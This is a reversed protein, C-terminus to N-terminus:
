WKALAREVLGIAQEEKARMEVLVAALDRRVGADTLKRYEEPKDLGGCISWMKFVLDHEEHYLRAAQTLDPAASPARAAVQQLYGDAMSREEALNGAVSNHMTHHQRLTAEDGSFNAADLLSEEWAKLAAQGNWKTAVWAPATPEPFVKPTRFVQLGWALSDHYVQRIDPRPSKEGIMLLCLNGEMWNRKRFQGEPEFDGKGSWPYDQFHSWGMLVDGGEDWGTVISPEPPGVIGYSLVPMHRDYLSAVIRRLWDAQNDAGEQPLIWEYAYGLAHFCRRETTEFDHGLWATSVCDDLWHEDWCTYFAAGSVGMLFAYGCALEQDGTFGPLGAKQCGLGEGLYEMIARIVSPIPIDEPCRPFKDLRQVNTYWGVPPVGELKFRKPVSTSVIIAGELV